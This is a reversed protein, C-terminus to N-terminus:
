GEPVWQITMAIAGNRGGPGATNGPEMQKGDAGLAESSKAGDGDDVGM